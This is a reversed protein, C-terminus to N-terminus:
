LILENVLLPHIGQCISSMYDKDLKKIYIYFCSNVEPLNYHMADIEDSQCEYWYLGGDENYKTVIKSYTSRGFKDPVCQILTDQPLVKEETYVARYEDETAPTIVGDSLENIYNFSSMGKYNLIRASSGKVQYKVCKSPSKSFLDALKLTDVEESTIKMKPVLSDSNLKKSDKIFENFENKSLYPLYSELTFEDTVTNDFAEIFRDVYDPYISFVKISKIELKISGIYRILTDSLIMSGKSDIFYSHSDKALPDRKLSVISCENSSELNYEIQSHGPYLDRDLYIILNKSM